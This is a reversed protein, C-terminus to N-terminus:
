RSRHAAPRHVDHGERHAREARRDRVDADLEGVRGVDRGRHPDHGPHAGVRELDEALVALEDGADVRDAHREVSPCSSTGQGQLSVLYM